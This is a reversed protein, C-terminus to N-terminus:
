QRAVPAGASSEEEHDPVWFETWAAMIFLTGLFGCVLLAPWTWWGHRTWAFYSGLVLLATFLLYPFLAAFDFRRALSAEEIEVLRQVWKSGVERLLSASAPDKEELDNALSDYARIKGMVRKRRSAGFAIGLVRAM